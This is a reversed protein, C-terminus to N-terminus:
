FNHERISHEWIIAMLVGYQTEAVTEFEFSASCIYALM